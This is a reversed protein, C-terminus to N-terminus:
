RVEGFHLDAVTGALALPLGFRKAIKKTQLELASFTFEFDLRGPLQEVIQPDGDADRSRAARATHSPAM